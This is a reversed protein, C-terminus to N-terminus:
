RYAARLPAALDGREGVEIRELGLWGALDELESALEAAIRARPVGDEAFAGRVLLAGGARDGKLDVRAM